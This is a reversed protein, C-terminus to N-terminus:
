DVILGKDLDFNIHFLNEIGQMIVTEKAAISAKLSEHKM